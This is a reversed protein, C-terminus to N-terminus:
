EEDMGPMLRSYSALAMVVGYMSTNIHAIFEQEREKRRKRSNRGFIALHMQLCAALSKGMSLTAQGLRGHPIVTNIGGKALRPLPIYQLLQDRSDSPGVFAYPVGSSRTSFSSLNFVACWFLMCYEEPAYVDLESGLQLHQLLM